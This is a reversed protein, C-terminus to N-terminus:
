IIKNNIWEFVMNGADYIIRYGNDIMNQKETKSDDFNKLKSKLKHKQFQIRNFVNNCDTYFYNPNTHNVFSFGLKEYLSGTSIRADAYSVISKPNYTNKFYNFMKGAGGVVTTNLINCFRIMEWEHNKSFRSKSFSMVSVLINNYYLGIRIKSIGYGQLHNIECFNIYEKNSIEKIVCNRAYIKKNKGIKSSIISNVIDSNYIIENSFFQLLTLDSSNALLAKKKHTYDTKTHDVSHWYLGNYEIGVKYNKILIDIEYPNIIQRNNRELVIDFNNVLTNAFTNEEDSVKRNHIKFNNKHFISALKKPKIEVIESLRQITCQEKEYIELIKEQNNWYYKGTESLNEYYIPYVYKENFESTQTFWEVGYKETNTRKIKEKYEENKMPHSTGYNKKSTYEKKKIISKKNERFNQLQKERCEDTALYSTKGYRELNTKRTKEKIEKNQIPAIVGYRELNTQKTKEQIEKNQSPAITGYRELNTKRMKEQVEKTKSPTATGYRELNTQQMRKTRMKIGCDKCVFSNNQTIKYLTAGCESCKDSNNNEIICRIKESISLQPFLQKLYEFEKVINNNEIYKQTIQSKYKGKKNLLYRKIFEEM